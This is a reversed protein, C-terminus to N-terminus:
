HEREEIMPSRLQNLVDNKPWSTENNEFIKNPKGINQTNHVFRFSITRSWITNFVQIPRSAVPTSNM